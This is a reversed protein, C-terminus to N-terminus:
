KTADQVVETAAAQVVPDVAKVADAATAVADVAATVPAVEAEVVTPTVAAVAEVAAIVAPAADVVAEVAPKVDAVVAEVTQVVPATEVATKVADVVEVVPDATTATIETYGVPVDAFLNAPHYGEVETVKLIHGLGFLNIVNDVTYIAGITFHKQGEIVQLFANSVGRFVVKAGKTLASVITEPLAKVQDITTIAVPTATTTDPTAM